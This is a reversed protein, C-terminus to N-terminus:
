IQVREKASPLGRAAQPRAAIGGWRGRCLKVGRCVGEGTARREREREREHM